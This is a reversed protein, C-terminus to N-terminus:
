ELEIIKVVEAGAEDMLKEAEERLESHFRLCVGCNSSITKPVPILRVDLGGKKCAREARVSKSTTDFIAICYIGMLLEKKLKFIIYTSLL